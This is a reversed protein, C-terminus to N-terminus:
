HGRLVSIVDDATIVGAMKGDEDLVPLTLLNYKDFLEVIPKQDEDVSVQIIEDTALDRLPIEASAVFLKALPVVGVLREDADILCLTNVTDLLTANRRPAALANAGKASKKLDVYEPNMLGGATDEEFELLERVAAGPETEMEDIIEEADEEEMEALVDAAE